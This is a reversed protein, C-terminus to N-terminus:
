IAIGKLSKKVIVSVFRVLDPCYQALFAIVISYPIDKTSLSGVVWRFQMRKMDLLCLLVLEGLLM